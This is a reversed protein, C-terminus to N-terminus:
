KSIQNREDANHLEAYVLGTCTKNSKCEYIEKEKSFNYITKYTKNQRECNM